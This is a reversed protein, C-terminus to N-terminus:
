KKLKQVTESIIDLIQNQDHRVLLFSKPDSVMLFYPDILLAKAIKEMMPISPKRKHSEIEALYVKSLGAKESLKEQSWGMEHRFYKINNQVITELKNKM